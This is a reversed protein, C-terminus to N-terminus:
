ASRRDRGLRRPNGSADARNRLASSVRCRAESLSRRDGTEDHVIRRRGSTRRWEQAQMFVAAGNKEADGIVQKAREPSRHASAVSM